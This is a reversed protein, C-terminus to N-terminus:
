RLEQVEAQAGQGEKLHSFALYSKKVSNSSEVCSLCTISMEEYVLVSMLVIFILYTNLIEKTQFTGTLRKWEARLTAASPVPRLPLALPDRVAM